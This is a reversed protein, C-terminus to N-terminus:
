EAAVIQPKNITVKNGLKRLADVITQEDFIEDESQYPFDSPPGTINFKSFISNKLDPQLTPENAIINTHMEYGFQTPTNAIWCVVSPLGLAAAAHQAFSDIFLRKASMSILVLLHRFDASVPYVNQLQLQDQRRIQVVNYEGAFKNVIRQATAVPLDRPWSYKDGTNSVGGNMQILLIPKPSEFLKGYETREKHSSFLEPLEGNYAIGNMSCWVENLHGRRHIFESDNYPDHFFFKTDPQDQIFREYFYSMDNFSLRENVNKNGAFVDPYGTVVTLRCDPYQTKIAKCVATAAISKGIGGNIQFVIKM